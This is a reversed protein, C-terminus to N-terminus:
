MKHFCEIWRPPAFGCLEVRMSRSICSRPHPSRLIGSGRVRTFLTPHAGHRRIGRPGFSPQHTSLRTAFWEQAGDEARPGSALEAAREDLIHGIVTDGAMAIRRADETDVAIPNDTWTPRLVQEGNVISYLYDYEPEGYNFQHTKWRWPGPTLKRDGSTETYHAANHL